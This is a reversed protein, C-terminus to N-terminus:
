DCDDRRVERKTSVGKQSEIYNNLSDIADDIIEQDGEEFDETNLITGMLDFTTDDRPDTVRIVYPSPLDDARLAEFYNQLLEEDREEGLKVSRFVRVRPDIDRLSLEDVRAFVCPPFAMAFLGFVSFPDHRDHDIWVCQAFKDTGM